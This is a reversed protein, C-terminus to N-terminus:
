SREIGDFAEPDEMEHEAQLTEVLEEDPGGNVLKADDEDLDNMVDESVVDSNGEKLATDLEKSAKDSHEVPEAKHAEMDKAVEEESQGDPHPIPDGEEDLEQVSGFEDHDADIDEDQHDRDEGQGEDDSEEGFEDKNRDEEEADEASEEEDSEDEEASEDEATSEEQEESEEESEDGSEDDSDAEDDEFDSDASGVQIFSEGEAANDSASGESEDSDASDASETADVDRKQQLAALDEHENENEAEADAADKGDKEVGDVVIYDGDEGADEVGGSFDQSTMDQQDSAAASADVDVDTAAASTDANSSTSDAAADAVKSVAVVSSTANIKNGLTNGNIKSIAVHQAQLFGLPGAVWAHSTIAIIAGVIVLLNRRLLTM